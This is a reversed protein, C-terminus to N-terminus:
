RIYSCIEFGESNYATAKVGSSAMLTGRTIMMIEVVKARETISHLIVDFSFSSEDDYEIEVIVRPERKSENSTKM